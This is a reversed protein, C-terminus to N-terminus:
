SWTQCPGCYSRRRADWVNPSSIGGAGRRRDAAHRPIPGRSGGSTVEDRSTSGRYVGASAAIRDDATTSLRSCRRRHILSQARDRRRHSSCRPGSAGLSSNIARSRPGRAVDSRGTLRRAPRPLRPDERRHLRRGGRARLPRHRAPAARRRAPRALFAGRRRPRLDRRERGVAVLTPPRHERFYEQFARTSTSTSGTTSSCTSSRSATAPATSALTDLEWTDPSSASRTAPATRGSGCPPRQRLMARVAAENTPTADKAYAFLPEWFPPSARWTPTAPSPSSPRCASPTAAARHAARDARRLGPHLPTFRELGIADVFREVVEYLRTSRTSSSTAPPFSSHGFGPYDPAVLHFRDALAPILNRFM